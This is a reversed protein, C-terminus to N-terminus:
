SAAARSALNGAVFAAEVAADALYIPAIRGIGAYVSDITGLGAATGVALARIEPSVRQRVAAALLVGGIVGVLV